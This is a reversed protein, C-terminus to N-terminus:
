EPSHAPLEDCCTPTVFGETLHGVPLTGCTANLVLNERPLSAKSLRNKDPDGCEPLPRWGALGGEIVVGSAAALIAEAGEFDLAARELLDSSVAADSIPHCSVVEIREEYCPTAV